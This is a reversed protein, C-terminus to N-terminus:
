RAAPGQYVIDFGEKFGQILFQTKNKDYKHKKLLNEFEVTNIPMVINQINFNEFELVTEVAPNGTIFM